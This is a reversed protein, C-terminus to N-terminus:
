SRIAIFYTDLITERYYTHLYFTSSVIKYYVIQSLKVLINFMICAILSNFEWLYRNNKKKYEFEPM